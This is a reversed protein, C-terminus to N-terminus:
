GAEPEQEPQAAQRADKEAQRADKEAQFATRWADGLDDLVVSTEKWPESLKPYVADQKYWGSTLHHRLIWNDDSTLPAFMAPDSAAMVPDAPTAGYRDAQTDSM